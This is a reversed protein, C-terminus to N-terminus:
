LNRDLQLLVTVWKLVLSKFVLIPAGPHRLRYAGSKLWTVIERDM